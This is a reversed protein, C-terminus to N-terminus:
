PADKDPPPRNRNRTQWRRRVRIIAASVVPRLAPLDIALVLFGLPLMWFGLVPLFGLTGGIVLFLGLPLRMLMGPRGQIASILPALVPFAVAMARLQRDLRRKQRDAMPLASAPHWRPPPRARTQCRLLPFPCRALDPLPIHLAATGGTM